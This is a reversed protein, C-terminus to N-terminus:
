GFIKAVISQMWEGFAKAIPDSIGSLLGLVVEMIAIMGVSGKGKLNMMSQDFNLMFIHVIYSRCVASVTQRNM